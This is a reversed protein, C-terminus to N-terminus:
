GCQDNAAAQVAVIVAAQRAPTLQPWAMDFTAKGPAAGPAQLTALYPEVLTHPDGGRRAMWDRATQCALAYEEESSDAPVDVRTTVGGPSVGIAGPPPPAGPPLPSHNDLGGSSPGTKSNDHGSSCGAVAALGAAILVTGARLRPCRCWRM